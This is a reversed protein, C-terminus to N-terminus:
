DLSTPKAAETRRTADEIARAYNVERWWLEDATLATPASDRLRRIRYLRLALIAALGLALLPVEWFFLGFLIVTAFVAGVLVFSCIVGAIGGILTM